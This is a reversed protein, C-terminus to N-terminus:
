HDESSSGLCLVRPLPDPYDSYLLFASSALNYLGVGFTALTSSIAFDDQIQGQVGSYFTSAMDIPAILNWIVLAIM